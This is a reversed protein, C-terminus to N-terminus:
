CCHHLRKWIFSLSQTLLHYMFCKTKTGIQPLHISVEKSVKPFLPTKPQKECAKILSTEDRWFLSADLSLMHKIKHTHIRSHLTSSPPLNGQGSDRKEGPLIENRCLVLHSFCKLIKKFQNLTLHHNEQKSDSTSHHPWFCLWECYTMQKMTLLLSFIFMCPIMTYTKQHTGQNMVLLCWLSNHAM